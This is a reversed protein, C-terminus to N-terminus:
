VSVIGTDTVASYDEIFEFVHVGLSYTLVSTRQELTCKMSSTESLSLYWGASYWAPYMLVHTPYRVGKEYAQLLSNLIIICNLNEFCQVQKASCKLQLLVM